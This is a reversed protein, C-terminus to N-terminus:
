VSGWALLVIWLVVSPASLLYAWRVRRMKVSAVGSVTHIQQLLQSEITEPAMEGAHVKFEDSPMAAIDEFYILSGGTKPNRPLYVSAAIAVVSVLLLAYLGMLAALAVAEAGWTEQSLIPAYREFRAALTGVLAIQLALAPAVKTDASRTFGIARSLSEYHSKLREEM